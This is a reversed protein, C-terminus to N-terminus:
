PANSRGAGTPGLAAADEDGGIAWAECRDIFDEWELDPYDDHHRLAMWAFRFMTEYADMGGAALLQELMDPKDLLARLRLADGPRNVCDIKRDDISVEFRFILSM